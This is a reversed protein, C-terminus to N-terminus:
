KPFAEKALSLVLQFPIEKEIPKLKSENKLPEWYKPCLFDSKKLMLSHM